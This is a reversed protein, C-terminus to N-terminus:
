VREVSPPSVQDFGVSIQGSSTVFFHVPVTIFDLWDEPLIKLLSRIQSAEFKSTVWVRIILMLCVMVSTGLLLWRGERLSKIWLARNM